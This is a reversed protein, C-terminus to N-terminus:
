SDLAVVQRTIGEFTPQNATATTWHVLVLTNKTMNGIAFSTSDQETILNLKVYTDIVSSTMVSENFVGRFSRLIKFRFRKDFDRYAYIQPTASGYIETATPLVGNPQRDLVLDVRWEDNLASALIQLVLGQLQISKIEGKNGTPGAVPIHTVLLTANMAALAFVLDNQVYEVERRIAKRNSKALRLAQDVKSGKKKRPKFRRSM